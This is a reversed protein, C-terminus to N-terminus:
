ARAPKRSNVSSYDCSQGSTKLTKARKTYNWADGVLKELQEKRRTIEKKQTANLDLAKWRALQEAYIDLFEVQESYLKIVRGVTYDDLIHPRCFHKKCLKM